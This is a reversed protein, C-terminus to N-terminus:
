RFFPITFGFLKKRPPAQVSTLAGKYEEDDDEEPAARKRSGLAVTSTEPLVTKSIPESPIPATVPATTVSAVSPSTASSDASSAFAAGELVHVAPTIHVAVPENWTWFSRDDYGDDIPVDRVTWHDESGTNQTYVRKKAPLITASDQFPQVGHRNSFAALTKQNRLEVGTVKWHPKQKRGRLPLYITSRGGSQNVGQLCGLFDADQSLVIVHPNSVGDAFVKIRERIAYDALQSTGTDTAADLIVTNIGDGRLLTRLLEDDKPSGRVGKKRSLPTPRYGTSYILEMAGIVVNEARVLNSTIARFMVELLALVATNLKGVNEADVFIGVTVVNVSPPVSSAKRVLRVSSPLSGLLQSRGARLADLYLAQLAPLNSPLVNRMHRLDALNMVVDQSQGSAHGSSTPSLTKKYIKGSDVRQAFRGLAPYFCSSCSPRRAAPLQANSLLDITLSAPARPSHEAVALNRQRYSCQHSSRPKSTVGAAPIPRPPRYLCCYSARLLHKLGDEVCCIGKTQTNNRPVCYRPQGLWVGTAWNGFACGTVNRPLLVLLAGHAKDPSSQLRGECLVKVWGSCFFPNNPLM